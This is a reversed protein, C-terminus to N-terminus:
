YKKSFEVIEKYTVYKARIEFEDELNKSKYSIYIKDKYKSFGWGVYETDDGRIHDDYYLNAYKDLELILKEYNRFDEIKM